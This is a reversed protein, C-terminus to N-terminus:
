KEESKQKSIISVEAQKFKDYCPRCIKEGDLPGGLAGRFINHEKNCQLCKKLRQLSAM